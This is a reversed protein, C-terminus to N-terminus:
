RTSIDLKVNDFLIEDGGAWQEPHLHLVVSGLTDTMGNLQLDRVFNIFTNVTNEPVDVGRLKYSKYESTGSLRGLVLRTSWPTEPMVDKPPEIAIYVLIEKGVPIKADINFELSRIPERIVVDPRLMSFKIRQFSIQYFKADKVMEAYVGGTSNMGYGPGQSLRIQGGSAWASFGPLMEAFRSGPDPPYVAVLAPVNNFNANVLSHKEDAM